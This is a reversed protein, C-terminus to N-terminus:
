YASKLDFKAGLIPTSPYHIRYFCIAHVVRKIVWGYLCPALRDDIIRSNVSHGSDFRFSQDHTLRWKPVIEGHENITRQDTMGVPSVVVDPIDTLSHIPIPLQWGRIVEDELTALAIKGNDRASKHNGYSIAALLDMRRADEHIPHLPMEAGM